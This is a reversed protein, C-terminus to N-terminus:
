LKNRTSADRARRFSDNDIVRGRTFGNVRLDPVYKRMWEIDLKAYVGPSGKVNCKHGWSVVGILSKQHIAPGGSDGGCSDGRGRGGACFMTDDVNSSGVRTCQEVYQVSVQLLDKSKPGGYSTQGLGLVKVKAGNSLDLSKVSIPTFRSDRVLEILALDYSNAAGTRHFPHEYVNKVAIREFPKGGNKKAAWPAHAGIYVADLKDRLDNKYYNSICHGATLLWRKGILTAGCVGRFYQGGREDLTMAFFSKYTRQGNIIDLDSTSKSGGCASLLLLISIARLM